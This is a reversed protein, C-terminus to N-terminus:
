GLYRGRTMAEAWIWWGGVGKESREGRASGGPVEERRRKLFKGTMWQGSTRLQPRYISSLGPHGVVSRRWNDTVPAVVDERAAFGPRLLLRAGFQGQCHGM